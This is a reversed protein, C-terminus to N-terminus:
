IRPLCWGRSNGDEQSFKAELCTHFLKVFAETWEYTAMKLSKNPVSDPENAKNDSVKKCAAWLKETIIPSVWEEDRINAKTQAACMTRVVIQIIENEFEAINWM